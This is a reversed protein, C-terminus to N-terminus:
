SKVARIRTASAASARPSDPAARTYRAAPTGQTPPMMPPPVQPAAIPPPQSPRAPARATDIMTPATGLPGPANTGYEFATRALGAQVAPAPPQKAGCFVCHLAADPLDKTCSACKKM